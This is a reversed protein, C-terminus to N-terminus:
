FREWRTTADEIADFVAKATPIQLDTSMASLATSIDVYEGILEGNNDIEAFTLLKSKDDSGVSGSLSPMTFKFSGKGTVLGKDNYKTTNFTVYEGFKPAVDSELGDYAEVSNDISFASGELKLGGNQAATYVDVLDQLDVKITETQGGEINFTMVLIKHISGSVAEEELAVSQLMGAKVFDSADFRSIEAGGIGRLIVFVQGTGERKECSITLTSSLKKGDLKIIKDDAVVGDVTPEPIDVNARLGDSCEEIEVNGAHQGSAINLSLKVNEPDSDDVLISSGRDTKITKVCTALAEEIAERISAADSANGKTLTLTKTSASFNVDVVSDGVGTIVVSIDQGFAYKEGGLYVEHTDTLFYLTNPDKALNPFNVSSGRSFLVNPTAM